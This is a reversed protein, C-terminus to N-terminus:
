PFGKIEVKNTLDCIGGENKYDFVASTAMKNNNFPKVVEQFEENKLAINTKLNAFTKVEQQELSVMSSKNDIINFAEDDEIQAQIKIDIPTMDM